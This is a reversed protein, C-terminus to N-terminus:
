RLLVDKVDDLPYLSSSRSYDQAQGQSNSTRHACPAMLALCLLFPLTEGVPTGTHTNAHTHEVLNLLAKASGNTRIYLLRVEWSVRRQFHCKAQRERLHADRTEKTWGQAGGTVKMMESYALDALPSASLRLGRPPPLPVRLAQSVTFKRVRKERTTRIAYVDTRGTINGGNM